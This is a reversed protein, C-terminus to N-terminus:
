YLLGRLAIVLGAATAITAAIPLLRSGVLATVSVLVISIEFLTTAVELIEHSTLIHEARATEERSREDLMRAEKLLPAKELKEHEAIDRLHAAHKSDTVGELVAEYIHQRVSRSDYENYKDAARTIFIIADSKAASSQTVRLNAVLGTSAALLALVAAAIPIWRPTHKGGHEAVEHQVEV